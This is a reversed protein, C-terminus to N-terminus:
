CNASLGQNVTDIVGMFQHLEQFDANDLWKKLATM